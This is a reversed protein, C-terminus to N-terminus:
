EINQVQERLQEISQKLSLAAHTSILSLSKSGITNAERNLEQSLFDLAKGHPGPRGLQARFEQCHAKLRALEEAIDSRLGIASVENQIRQFMEPYGLDSSSKTSNGDTPEIVVGLVVGLAEALRRSLKDQQAAIITPIQRDLELTIEEITDLARFLEKQLAAGERARNEVMSNLAAALGSELSTQWQSQDHISETDLLDTSTTALMGPWQLIEAVSLRQADPIKALVSKQLAELQNLLTTNVEIPSNGELNSRVFIRVEVKGRKIRAQLQERIMSEYQRLADPLKFHLELFRSNVSRLEVQLTGHVDNQTSLGFGTM